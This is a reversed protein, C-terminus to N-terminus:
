QLAALQKELGQITQKTEDIRKQITPVRQLFKGKDSDAQDRDGIDGQGLDIDYGDTLKKEHAALSKHQFELFAELEIRTPDRLEEPKHVNKGGGLKPNQSSDDLMIITPNFKPDVGEPRLDDSGVADPIGPRPLPISLPPDGALTAMWNEYTDRNTVRRAGISVHTSPLLTPWMQEAANIAAIRSLTLCDEILGSQFGCHVCKENVLGITIQDHRIKARIVKGYTAIERKVVEEENMALSQSSFAVTALMVITKIDQKKM